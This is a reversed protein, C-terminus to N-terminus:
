QMACDSAQLIWSLLAAASWATVTLEYRRSWNFAVLCCMRWLSLIGLVDLSPEQHLTTFMIDVREAHRVYFLMLIGSVFCRWYLLRLAIVFLLCLFIFMICHCIGYWYCWFIPIFILTSGSVSLVKECVELPLTTVCDFSMLWKTATCWCTAQTTDWRSCATVSCLHCFTM